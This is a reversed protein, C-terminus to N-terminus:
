PAGPPRAPAPFNVPAGAGPPENTAGGHPNFYQLFMQPSVPPMDPPPPMPAPIPSAVHTVVAEGGPNIKNTLAGAALTLIESLAFPDAIETSELLPTAPVSYAKASVLPPLQILRNTQPPLFRLSAPGVAPLYGVSGLATLGWTVVCAILLPRANNLLRKSM